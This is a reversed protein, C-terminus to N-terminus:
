KHPMLSTSSSFNEKHLFLILSIESLAEQFLLRKKQHLVGVKAVCARNTELFKVALIPSSFGSAEVIACLWYDDKEKWLERLFLDPFSLTIISRFLM